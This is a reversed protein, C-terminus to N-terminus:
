SRKGWIEKVIAVASKVGIGPVRLWESEDAQALDLPSRFHREILDSKKVGISDIANAWKRLLTPRRNLTPIAFKQIEQLATHDDWKKQGWGHWECLNFATHFPDRSYQVIVGALSVSILYRFLKAYLVRNGRPKMFGWTMGGNFGEMLFGEPDHPKWHGEIMLVSVPYEQKMGVRQANYRADEVCTLMDHLRKREVGVLAIGDPGNVEIAADAFPLFTTEVPVSQRAIHQVLDLNKRKKDPGEERTDILIM